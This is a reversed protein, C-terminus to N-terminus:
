IKGQVANMLMTLSEFDGEFDELRLAKDDVIQKLSQYEALTDQSGTLQAKLLKLQATAMLVNEQLDQDNRKLDRSIFTKHVLWDPQYYYKGLAIGDRCISVTFDKDGIRKRQIQLYGCNTFFAVIMDVMSVLGLKMRENYRVFLHGNFVEMFKKESHLRFAQLGKASYYYVVATTATDTEDQYKAIGPSKQIFLIWTNKGRTKVPYAKTYTNSKDIKLKRRERDYEEVLRDMVDTEIKHTERIIEANVEQRTMTPLLM